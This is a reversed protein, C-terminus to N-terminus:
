AGFGRTVNLTVLFSRSAANFAFSDDLDTERKVVKIVQATNYGQAKALMVAQKSANQTTDAVIPIDLIM